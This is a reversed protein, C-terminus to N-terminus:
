WRNSTNGHSSKTGSSPSLLYVPATTQHRSRQRMLQRHSHAVFLQGCKRHQQPPLRATHPQAHSAQAGKNCDTFDRSLYSSVTTRLDKHRSFVIKRNRTWRSTTRWELKSKLFTKLLRPRPSTTAIAEIGWYELPSILLLKVTYKYLSRSM